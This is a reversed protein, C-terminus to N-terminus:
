NYRRKCTLQCVSVFPGTGVGGGFLLGQLCADDQWIFAVHFCVVKLGVHTQIDQRSKAVFVKRTPQDSFWTARTSCFRRSSHVLDPSNKSTVSAARNLAQNVAPSEKFEDVVESSRRRGNSRQLPGFWGNFVLLVTAPQRRVKWPYSADVLICELPLDFQKVLVIRWVLLLQEIAGFADRFLSGQLFRSAIAVLYVVSGHNLKSDQGRWKKGM